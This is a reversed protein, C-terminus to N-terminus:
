DSASAVETLCRAVFSEADIEEQRFAIFSQKLPGSFTNYIPELDVDHSAELVMLGCNIQAQTPLTEVGQGLLMATVAALAAGSGFAAGNKTKNGM